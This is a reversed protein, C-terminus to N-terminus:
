IVQDCYRFLTNCGRRQARPHAGPACHNAPSKRRARHLTMSAYIKDQVRSEGERGTLDTGRKRGGLHITKNIHLICFSRGTRIDLGPADTVATLGSPNLVTRARRTRPVTRTLHSASVFLLRMSIKNARKNEQIQLLLCFRPFVLACPRLREVLTLIFAVQPM